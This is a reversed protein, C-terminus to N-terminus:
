TLVRSKHGDSLFHQEHSTTLPLALGCIKCFNLRFVMQKGEKEIYAETEDHSESQNSDASMKRFM